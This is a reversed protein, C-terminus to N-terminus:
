AAGNETGELIYWRLPMVGLNKCLLLVAPADYKDRLDVDVEKQETVIILRM